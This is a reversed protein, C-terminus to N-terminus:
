TSFICSIRHASSLHYQPHLFTAQAAPRTHLPLFPQPGPCPDAGANGTLDSPVPHAPGWVPPPSVAAQPQAPPHVAVRQTITWSKYRLSILSFLWFHQEAAGPCLLCYFNPSLRSRGTNTLDEQLLVTGLNALATAVPCYYCGLVNTHHFAPPFAPPMVHLPSPLPDPWLERCGLELQQQWVAWCPLCSPTQM